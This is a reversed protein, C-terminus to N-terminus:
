FFDFYKLALETSAVDKIVMREGTPLDLVLNDGDRSYVIDDHLYYDMYIIDHDTGTLDFDIVTDTGGGSLFAFHDAGEGGSLTDTGAHGYLYDAGGKGKLIDDGAFGWLSDKFKSGLVTDDGQMLGHMVRNPRHDFSYVTYIDVAKADVDQFSYIKEGDSNFFAASTIDGSKIKGNKYVIDTGHLVMQSGDADKFVITHTKASALKFTAEDFSALNEFNVLNETYTVKAM